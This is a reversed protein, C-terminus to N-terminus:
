PLTQARYYRQAESAPITYPSTAPQGLVLVDSYSGSVSTASQLKGVGWNVVLNGGSLSANLKTSALFHLRAQDATLAKNYVAMEDISGDFALFAGDGRRGLVTAGGTAPDGNTGNQVFAASHSVSNREVGNVILRVATLDDSVAVHYWAGLILPIDFFDSAFGTPGSGGTYTALTWASGSHQYLNWGYIHGPIVYMSSFATAFDGPQSAPRIWAEYTWPGTVPNLELVYPIRVTGGGRISIAANTDFPIGNTGSVSGASDYAGDFSGVADTATGGGEDLRWYAVPDDATIIKAYGTKPVNVPRLQVLLQARATDASGFPGTIHAYYESTSDALQVNNLWLTDNTAGPIPSTVTGGVVKIWQYTIPLAGVAVARFAAKSGVNRTIPGYPDSIINLNTLVTLTAMDSNTSGLSNTVAVSFVAGDDTPYQALLSYSSNTAGPILSVGRKWQYHLPATGGAVPSFTVTTGHYNTQSVPQQLFNPPTPIARFSNTGLQYHASIDAASLANTYFAIEDIYGTFPLFGVNDGAGIQGDHSPNAYYGTIGGASSEQVGNVYFRGAAGDFTFTLHYWKLLEIRTTSSFFGVTKMNFIWRNGNAVNPEQYFNWGNANNYPPNPDSYSGFMSLPVRYGNPDTTQTTAQVWCEVSFAAGHLNDPMLPNLQVDYPISIFGHPSTELFKGSNTSIGPSGQEPFGSSVVYTGDFHNPSSDFATSGDVEELRYYAAPNNSLILEPYGAKAATVGLLTAAAELSLQLLLYSTRNRRPKM